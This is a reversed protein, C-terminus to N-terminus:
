RASHTSAHFTVFMRMMVSDVPIQCQFFEVFVSFAVIQIISSSRLKM